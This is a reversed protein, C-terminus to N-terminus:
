KRNRLKLKAISDKIWKHHDSVRTHGSETGYESRSPRGDAIVCSHIGALKNGIFLGGGSDGSAILFELSTKHRNASPNCILLGRDIKDIRNSGARQLSDSKTVGNIFDGTMGFGSLSCIQGMENQDEYLSPYWSLEIKNSLMGISIDNYGFVNTNYNEHQIFDKMTIIKNNIQIYCEKNNDLVHAATFFIDDSYAVASAIFPKDDLSKGILKGIFPFGSAYETYKSDPTNPDITGAESIIISSFILFLVLLIKGL